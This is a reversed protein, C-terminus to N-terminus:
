IIVSENCITCKVDTNIDVCTHVIGWYELLHKTMIYLVFLQISYIPIIKIVSYLIGLLQKM